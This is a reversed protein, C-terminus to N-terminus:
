KRGGRGRNLGRKEKRPKLPTSGAKYGEIMKKAAKNPGSRSKNKLAVTAGRGAKTRDVMSQAAKNPGTRAGQVKKPTPAVRPKTRAKVPKKPATRAKPRKPDNVVKGGIWIRAAKIPEDRGSSSAVKTGAKGIKAAKVKNRPDPM